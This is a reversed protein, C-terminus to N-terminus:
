EKRLVMSATAAILVVGLVVSFTGAAIHHNSLVMIGIMICVAALGLLFLYGVVDKQAIKVKM